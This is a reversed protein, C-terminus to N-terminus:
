CDWVREEQIEYKWDKDKNEADYVEFSEKMAEARERTSYVKFYNLKGKRTGILVFVKKMKKQKRENKQTKNIVCFLPKTLGKKNFLKQIKLNLLKKAM